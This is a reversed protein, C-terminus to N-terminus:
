LLRSAKIGALTTAAEAFLKVATAAADPFRRPHLVTPKLPWTVIVVAPMDDAELLEITLV